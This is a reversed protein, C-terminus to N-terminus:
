RTVEERNLVVYKKIRDFRRGVIRRVKFPLLSPEIHEVEIEISRTKEDTDYYEILLREM